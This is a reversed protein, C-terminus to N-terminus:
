SEGNPEPTNTQSIGAVFGRENKVPWAVNSNKDPSGLTGLDHISGDRWLTAHRKGLSPIISFGAIWGRNNLSNGRSNGGLDDLFIIQYQQAALPRAFAALMLALLLIKGAMVTRIPRSNM